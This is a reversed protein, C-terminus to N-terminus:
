RFFEYNQTKKILLAEPFNYPDLTTVSQRKCREFPSLLQKRSNRVPFSKPVGSLYMHIFLTYIYIFIIYYLITYNMYLSQQYYIFIIIASSPKPRFTKCFHKKKSYRNKTNLVDKVILKQPHITYIYICICDDFLFVLAIKLCLILPM